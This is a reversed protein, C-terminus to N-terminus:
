IETLNTNSSKLHFRDSVNDVKQSGQQRRAMEEATLNGSLSNNSDVHDLVSAFVGALALAKQPDGGSILSDLSNGSVFNEM